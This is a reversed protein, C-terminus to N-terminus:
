EYGGDYDGPVCEGNAERELRRLRAAHSKLYSHYKALGARDRKQILSTYYDPQTFSTDKKPEETPKSSVPGDEPECTLQDTM